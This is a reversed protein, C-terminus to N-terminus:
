FCNGQQRPLVQEALLVPQLQMLNMNQGETPGGQSIQAAHIMAAISSLMTCVIFAYIKIRDVKIGSLYAANKNRSM